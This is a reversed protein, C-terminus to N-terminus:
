ISTNEKEKSQNLKEKILQLSDRNQQLHLIMADRAADPDHRMIAETIARHQIITENKLSRRTLAGFLDVSYVIVPILKPMVVNHTCSAIARHFAKDSDLHNIGMRINNEVDQCKDLLKKCDEETAHQAANAVVWPELQMRVELLDFALQFQDSCFALGLPDQTEGTHQAIYTGKGRKIELINRAVLLKVAERISGRGVQLQEALEFENPLKDGAQLEQTRILNMLQDAVREPLSKAGNHVLKLDTTAM